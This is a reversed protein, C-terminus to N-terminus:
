INGYIKAEEKVSMEMVSVDGSLTILDKLKEKVLDIDTSQPVSLTLEVQVEQDTDEKSEQQIDMLFELNEKIEDYLQLNVKIRGSDELDQTSKRLNSIREQLVSELSM